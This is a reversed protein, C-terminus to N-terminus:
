LPTKYMKPFSSVQYVAKDIGTQATYWMVSKYSIKIQIQEFYLKMANKTFTKSVNQNM